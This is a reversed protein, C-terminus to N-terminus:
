GVEGALNSHSGLGGIVAPRHRSTERTAISLVGIKLQLQNARIARCGHRSNAFLGAATIIEGAAIRGTPMAGNRVVFPGLHTLDVRANIQHEVSIWPFKLVIKRIAGPASGPLM